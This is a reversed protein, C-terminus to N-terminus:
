ALVYGRDENLQKGSRAQGLCRRILPKDCQPNREASIIRICQKSSIASVVLEPTTQIGTRDRTVLLFAALDIAASEVWRVRAPEPRLRRRARPEGRGM